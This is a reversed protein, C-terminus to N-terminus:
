VTSDSTVSNCAPVSGFVYPLRFHRRASRWRGSDGFIFFLRRPIPAGRWGIWLDEVGIRRVPFHPNCEMITGSKRSLRYFRVPSYFFFQMIPLPTVQVCWWLYYRFQPVIDRCCDNFCRAPRHVSKYKVYTKKPGWACCQNYEATKGWVNWFSMLMRSGSPWLQRRVTERWYM